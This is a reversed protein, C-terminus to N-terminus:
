DEEKDIYDRVWEHYRGHGDGLCLVDYGLEKFHREFFRAADSGSFVVLETKGDPGTVILEYSFQGNFIIVTNPKM